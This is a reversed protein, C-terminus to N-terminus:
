RRKDSRLSRAVTIPTGIPFDRDVITARRGRFMVAEVAFGLYDTGAAQRQLPGDLDDYGDPLTVPTNSGSLLLDSLHRAQSEANPLDFVAETDSTEEVHDLFDVEPNDRIIRYLFQVLRRDSVRM